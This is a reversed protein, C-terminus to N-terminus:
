LVGGEDSRQPQGIQHRALDDLRDDIDVLAGPLHRLAIVINDEGAPPILFDRLEVIRHVVRRALQLFHILHTPIQDSVYRM